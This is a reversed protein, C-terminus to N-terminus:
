VPKEVIRGCNTWHMKVLGKRHDCHINGRTVFILLTGDDIVRHTGAFMADNMWVNLTMWEIGGNCSQPLFFWM